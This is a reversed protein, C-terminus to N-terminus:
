SRTMFALAIGAVLALTVSAMAVLMWRGSIVRGRWRYAAGVVGSLIVLGLLDWSTQRDVFGRYAVVVLLGFSLVLYSLRDAAHDVGTEREDRTTLREM